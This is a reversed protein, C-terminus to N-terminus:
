PADEKVLSAEFEKLLGGVRADFAARHAEPVVVTVLFTGAEDPAREIKQVDAEVLGPSANFVAILAGPLTPACLVLSREEGEHRYCILWRNM